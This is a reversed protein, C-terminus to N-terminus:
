AGFGGPWAVDLAVCLLESLVRATAGWILDGPVKFFDIPVFGDGDAGPRGDRRWREEVFAGNAALDALAVTFAREVETPDPVLQPPAALTGVVPWMASGSAFTALPSLWGVVTVAGPDLRVEEHAERLAAARMTEGPNARGGPLAIELRHHRLAASRRTLVVRTEGDAEFLAVLVASRRTIERAIAEAVGVLERPQDPPDGRRGSALLREVVTAVAIDRRAAAPLGAWPAAAGPRIDRPEPLRQPYVHGAFREGPPSPPVM